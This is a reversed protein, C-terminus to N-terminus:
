LHCRVTSANSPGGTPSIAFKADIRLDRDNEM